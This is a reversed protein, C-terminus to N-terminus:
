PAEDFNTFTVVDADVLIVILTTFIAALVTTIAARKWLAPREPASPAHGPEAPTTRAKQGIPLVLFFCLWWVIIFVLIITVVGM